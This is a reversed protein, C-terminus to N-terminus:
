QFLTDFDVRKFAELHGGRTANFIKIGHADAYQRAYEYAINMEWPSGVVKDSKEDSGTFYSHTGNNVITGDKRKEIGYSNDCGIIYMERIGMHVALEFMAYTVSAITYVVKSCNESFKPHDLLSRNGDTNVWVVNGIVRRTVPYSNMRFFKVQAPVNNMTELLTYQYAEDMISYFTPRWRTQPFIKDIKNSAFSLDGNECIRDLDAPKLSPGNGVIFCRRGMYRNHLQRLIEANAQKRGSHRFLWLGYRKRLEYLQSKALGFM